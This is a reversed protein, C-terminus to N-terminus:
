LIRKGFLSSLLQVCVEASVNKEDFIPNLETVDASRVKGTDYLMEFVLHSERYNPGGRVPTGVGPAVWPDLFDVDFSVHIWDCAGVLPELVRAIAGPMGLEDAHRMTVTHVGTARIREREQEDIDRVGFLSVQSPLLHPARGGINVLTPHGEGLLAALPMGHI